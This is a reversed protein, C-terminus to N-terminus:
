RHQTRGNDRNRQCTDYKRAQAMPLPKDNFM